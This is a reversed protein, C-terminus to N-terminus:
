ALNGSCSGLGAVLQERAHQVKKDAPYRHGLGGLPRSYEELLLFSAQLLRLDAALALCIRLM